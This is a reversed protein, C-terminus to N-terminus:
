TITIISRTIRTDVLSQTRNANSTETDVVTIEKNTKAHYGWWKKLAAQPMGPLQKEPGAARVATKTVFTRRGGMGVSRQVTHRFM